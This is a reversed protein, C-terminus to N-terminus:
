KRADAYFTRSLAVHDWGLSVLAISDPTEEVLGLTGTNTDPSPFYTVSRIPHVSQLLEVPPAAGRDDLTYAAVVYEAGRQWLGVRMSRKGASTDLAHVQAAVIFRAQAMANREYPGPAGPDPLLSADPRRVFGGGPAPAFVAGDQFAILGTRFAAVDHACPGELAAVGALKM